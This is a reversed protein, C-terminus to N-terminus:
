DTKKALWEPPKSLIFDVIEKMKTANETTIDTRLTKKGTEKLVGFELVEKRVVKENAKQRVLYEVTFEFRDPPYCLILPIRLNTELSVYGLSFGAGGWSISYEPEEGRDILYSYFDRVAESDCRDIFIERNIQRSKAGTGTKADLATETMGIVRPVIAKHKGQGLFQKVEIALVEVDNMKENLFEV